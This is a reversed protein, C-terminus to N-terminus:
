RQTQNGEYLSSTMRDFEKAFSAMKEGWNEFFSRTKNVDVTVKEKKVEIGMPVTVTLNGEKLERDLERSTNDMKSQLNQFFTKAKNTDFIIKGDEMSMGMKNILSPENSQDAETKPEEKKVPAKSASIQEKQAKQPTNNQNSSKENALKKMQEQKFQEAKIARDKEEKSECGVLLLVSLLGYIINKM